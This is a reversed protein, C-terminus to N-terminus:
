QQPPGGALDYLGLGPGVFRFLVWVFAIIFLSAYAAKNAWFLLGREGMYLQVSKEWLTMQDWKEPFLQGEQWVVQKEEFTEQARIRERTQAIDDGKQGKRAFRELAELREENGDARNSESGQARCAQAPARLRPRAFPFPALKRLAV